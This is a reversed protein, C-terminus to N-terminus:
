QIGDARIDGAAAPSKGRVLPHASVPWDLSPKTVFAQNIYFGLEEVKRPQWSPTFPDNGEASLAPVSLGALYLWIPLLNQQQMVSDSITKLHQIKTQFQRSYSENWAVFAAPRLEALGPQPYGGHWFYKRSDDYLNEGHDSCFILVAAQDLQELQQLMQEIVIGSYAITTLYGQVQEREKEPQTKAFAEAYLARNDQRFSKPFRDIYDFHGGLMQFVLARNQTPNALLQKLSFNLQDDFSAREDAIQHNDWGSERFQVDLHSSVYSTFFGATKLYGLGSPRGRLGETMLEPPTGTMLAPVSHVTLNSISWLNSLEILKGNKWRQHLQPLLMSQTRPSMWDFRQSEGIVLIVTLGNKAQQTISVKNKVPRQIALAPDPLHHPQSFYKQLQTYTLRVFGIPWITNHAISFETQKNSDFLTDTTKYLYSIQYNTLIMLGSASLSLALCLYEWKRKLILPKRHLSYASVISILLISLASLTITLHNSLWRLIEALPAKTLTIIVSIHPACNFLLLFFSWFIMLPALLASMWGIYGTTSILTILCFYALFNLLAYISNVEILPIYFLSIFFPAFLLLTHWTWSFRRINM